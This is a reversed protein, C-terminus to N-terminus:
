VSVKNCPDFHCPISKSYFPETTQLNISAYIVFRINYFQSNVKFWRSIFCLIFTTQETSSVLRQYRINFGM